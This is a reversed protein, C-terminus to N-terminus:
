RRPPWRRREPIRCFRVWRGLAAEDVQWGVDLWARAQAHHAPDNAWWARYKHASPPLDAGIIARIEDFSLKARAVTQSKLYEGLPSYKGM